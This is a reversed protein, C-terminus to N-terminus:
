KILQDSLTIYFLYKKLLNSKWFMSKKLFAELM